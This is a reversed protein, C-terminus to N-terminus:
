IISGYVKITKQHTLEHLETVCWFTNQELIHEKEVKLSYIIDYNELITFM